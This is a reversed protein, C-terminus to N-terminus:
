IKAKLNKVRETERINTKNNGKLNLIQEIFYINRKYKKLLFYINRKDKKTYHLDSKIPNWNKEWQTKINCIKKIWNNM